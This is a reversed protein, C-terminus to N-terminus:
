DTSISPSSGLAHRMLRRKLFPLKNVLGMGTNRLLKMPPLESAFLRQLGDTTIQMLLIEEKRARAYRSLTREDGCDSLADPKTMVERLAQIDAFGLNMGQGALPHVVHAADGVLAVRDAVLSQARILRLPFAKAQTPKLMKLQGLTQGPLAMLRQALLEAPEHLLKAALLEPASWVLSVRNGPLPLLAVIGDAGLFWQSAVGHHPNESEFNAVVAQQHYSRYDMGIDAQMRVWSDAGDAGLVLRSAIIVGNDLTIEATDSTRKLAKAAGQVIKLGSAFRLAADLAHNLNKDEVIWALAGVRAGYADFNLVGSQDPADGQVAMADVPAIRTTDMADWVKLSALLSRTVHNLAYVRTDWCDTAQIANAAQVPSKAPSPAVLVVELGAQALALASAKGIAGNGIVCIDCSIKMSSSSLTSDTDAPM